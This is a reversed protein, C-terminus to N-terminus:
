KVPAIGAIVLSKESLPMSAKVKVGAKKKSPPPMVGSCEKLKDAIYELGHEVFARTIIDDAEEDSLEPHAEQLLLCVNKGLGDPTGMKRQVHPHFFDKASKSEELAERALQTAVDLPLYSLKERLTPLPDEWDSLAWETFRQKLRLVNRVLKYKKGGVELTTERGVFDM